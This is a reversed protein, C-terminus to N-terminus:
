PWVSPEPYSPRSPADSIWVCVLLHPCLLIREPRQMEWSVNLHFLIIKEATQSTSQTGERWSSLDWGWVNWRWTIIPIDWSHVLKRLFWSGLSGKRAGWPPMIRPFSRQLSVSHHVHDGVEASGKWDLRNLLALKKSLWPRPGVWQVDEPHTMREWGRSNCLGHEMHRIPPLSTWSKGVGFASQNKTNQCDESPFNLEKWHMKLWVIFWFGKGNTRRSFHFNFLSM